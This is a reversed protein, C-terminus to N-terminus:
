RTSGIFSAAFAGPMAPWQPPGLWPRLILCQKAEDFSSPSWRRGSSSSSRFEHRLVIPLLPNASASHRSRVPIRTVEGAWGSAQLAGVSSSRWPEWGATASDLRPLLWARDCRHQRLLASRNQELGVSLQPGAPHGRFLRLTITAGNARRRRWRSEAVKPDRLSQPEIRVPFSARFSCRSRRGPRARWLHPQM